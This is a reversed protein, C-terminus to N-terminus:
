DEEAQVKHPTPDPLPFPVLSGSAIFSPPPPSGSQNPSRRSPVSGGAGGDILPPCLGQEKASRGGGRPAERDPRPRCSPLRHPLKHLFCAPHPLSAPRSPPSSSPHIRPNISLKIEVPSRSASRSSFTCIHQAKRKTCEVEVRILGD